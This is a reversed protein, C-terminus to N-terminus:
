YGNESLWINVISSFPAAYSSLYKRQREETETLNGPRSQFSESVRQVWDTRKKLHHRDNLGLDDITNQAKRHQLSDLGDKPLLEGTTTDFSFHVEPRARKSFACPDVYGLEPWKKGRPTTAITVPFFGIPGITFSTPTCVRRSFTNSKERAATRRLLCLSGRVCEGPTRRLTALSLRKPRHGLSDRYFQIWPQTHQARIAGLDEPEPGRDVTICQNSANLSQRIYTQSLFQNEELRGSNRKM